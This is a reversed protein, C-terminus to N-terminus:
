AQRTFDYSALRTYVSGGPGSSSEYLHFETCDFSGFDSDNMKAIHAALSRTDNGPKIRALTVHPRYPKTERVCGLKATIRDTEAALAEMRSDPRVAAFFSHPRHPGPFFGFGRLQVPIPSDCHINGLAAKLENLREAPWTGIFKTTIHLNGPSTWRVNTTTRLEDILQSLRQTVNPALALGTFLRM